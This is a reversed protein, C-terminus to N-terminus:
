PARSSGADLRIDHPAESEAPRAIWIVAVHPSMAAVMGPELFPLPDAHCLACCHQTSDEHSHVGAFSAAQAGIVACLFLLVLLRRASPDLRLMRDIIATFPSFNATPPCNAM